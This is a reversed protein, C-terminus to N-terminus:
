GPDTFSIAGKVNVIYRGFQSEETRSYDSKLFLRNQLDIWLIHKTVEVSPMRYKASIKAAEREAIKEFGELTFTVAYEGNQDSIEGDWSQGVKLPGTPLNMSFGGSDSEILNSRSDYISREIKGVKTDGYLRKMELFFHDGDGELSRMVSKWSTKEPSWETITQVYVAESKGISFGSTEM